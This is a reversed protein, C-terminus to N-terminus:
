HRLDFIRRLLWYQRYRALHLVTSRRWDFGHIHRLSNCYPQSSVLACLEQKQQKRDRGDQLYERRFLYRSLVKYFCRNQYYILDDGLGLEDIWASRNAYEQLVTRFAEPLYTHFGTCISGPNIRYHYTFEDLYVIKKALYYAQFNFLADQATRANKAHSLQHETLFARRYIKATTTDVYHYNEEREALISAILARKDEKSEIVKDHDCRNNVPHVSDGINLCTKSVAIDAQERVAIALLKECATVEMWDDADMFMLWDGTVNAMATNRAVAVGQNKQTLLRIRPDKQPYKTLFDECWQASGDNLLLIELNKHTQSCLSEICTDLYEEPVNYVPVIISILPENM